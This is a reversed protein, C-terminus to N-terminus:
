PGADVEVRSEVILLRDRDIGADNVMRKLLEHATEEDTVVTQVQYALKENVRIDNM